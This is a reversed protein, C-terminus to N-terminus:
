KFKLNFILTFTSGTDLNPTYEIAGNQAMMIQFCSALSLGLHRQKDTVFPNFMTDRIDFPVFTSDDSISIYLKTDDKEIHIVINSEPTRDVVNNLIAEFIFKTKLPDLNITTGTTDNCISFNLGGFEPKSKLYTLTDTIYKDLDTPTLSVKDAYRFFSIAEMSSILYRLDDNMQTWRPNDNLQPNTLELLQYNGFILSIINCIDHCAVKIDQKTDNMIHMIFEHIEPNSTKLEELYEKDNLTLM